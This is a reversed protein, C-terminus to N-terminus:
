KEDVVGLRYKLSGCDYIRYIERDLMIQHETKRSDFGEKILVDKRYKFRNERVGEIIYFYNPRTVSDLKFGIKTYLNDKFSPTWRRDAYSIIDKPHHQSIFTKLLKSASGVVVTNTKNCFRLLEYEGDKRKNGLNKRLSGFTMLAVLEGNDVLGYNYNSVVTGQLHNNNLFEEVTKYNIEEVDCNRSYIIRETKGLVNKIRSKIIDQKNIWEDEFIHILHINKNECATTKDLHYTDLKNLENHWHLGNFEFAVKLDPIHIDLEFPHIIKRDNKIVDSIHKEIFSGLEKEAESVGENLPNCVTCVEINNKNRLYFTQYNIEFPHECKSCYLKYIQRNSVDIVSIQKNVEKINSIILDTRKGNYYEILSKRVKETIEKQKDKRTRQIKEVNNYKENGYKLEKTQKRKKEIDEMEEQSKQNWAHRIAEVNVYNENGYKKRLTNKTKITRESDSDTCKKSCCKCYGRRFGIFSTEKGCVKCIGEGVDKLFKDYYEKSTITHRNRIHVSLAIINKQEKGCIKCFINNNELM